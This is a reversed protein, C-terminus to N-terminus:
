RYRIGNRRGGRRLVYLIELYLLWQGRVPFEQSSLGRNRAFAVSVRKTIMEKALGGHVVELRRLEDGM